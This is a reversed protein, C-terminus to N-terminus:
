RKFTEDIEKRDYDLIWANYDHYMHELSERSTGLVDCGRDDYIFFITGKTRNIFYIEHPISPKMGMDHRCIAKIMPHLRLDEMRCTLTFVHTACEDDEEDEAYMYPLTQHTLTRLMSREKIYKSFFHLHGPQKIGYGYDSVSAAVILQDEKEHLSHFLTLAKKYVNELYLQDDDGSLSMVGLEFRIAYDWQYFLPM